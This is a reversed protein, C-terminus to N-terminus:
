RGGPAPEATISTGTLASGLLLQQAANPNGGVLAQVEATGCRPGYEDGYHPCDTATYQRFPNITSVHMSWAMLHGPGWHFVAEWHHLSVNLNAVSDPIADPDAALTGIMMNTGSVLAKGANPSRAFLANVTDVTGGATTLMAILNARRQTLTDATTLSDDLVNVLDPASQNLAETAAGLNGLLGGIGPIGDVTTLWRDLRDITSGPTRYQPELADALTGLVRGLREPEIHDLIDRLTTLTTQLETSGRPDEPIVAGARLGTPAPGNDVFEMATVGFLNNPIVRATINDPIAAARDPRLAITVRQQAGKDAIQVDTVSGVLIGRYKVDAHAPLGDGTSTMVATVTVHATFYGTYRLMLLWGAAGVALLMAVGAAAVQRLTPGRGSPDRLM